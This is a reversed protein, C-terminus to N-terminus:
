KGYSYQIIGVAERTIIIFPLGNTIFLNAELCESTLIAYVTTYAYEM